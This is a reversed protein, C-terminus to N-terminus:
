RLLAKVEEENQIGSRVFVCNPCSHNNTGANYIVVPQLTGDGNGLLVGVSSNNCDGTSVCYNTVAVDPKGDENLDAVAVTPRFYGGSSYTVATQFTGDGKGLLVSVFGLSDGIAVLSNALVVDPKGDRNLDAVVVSFAECM